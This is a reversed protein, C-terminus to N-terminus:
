SSHWDMGMVCGLAQFWFPHSLRRLVEQRGYHLVMAEVMVRGLRAMRSSLWPPVKGSHLPLDASGTRNM